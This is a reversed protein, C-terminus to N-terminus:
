KIYNGGNAPTYSMLLFNEPLCKGSFVVDKFAEKSGAM